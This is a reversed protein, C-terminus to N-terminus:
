RIHIHGEEKKENGAEDKAFYTYNIQTYAVNDLVIATDIAYNTQYPSAFANYLIEGTPLELKVSTEKLLTEDKFVIKFFATDGFDYTQHNAPMFIIEPAQRDSPDASERTCSAILFSILALFLYRKYRM